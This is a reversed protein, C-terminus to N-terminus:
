AGKAVFSCTATGSALTGVNCRLFKVPKNVVSRFEGSANTTQDLIAFSGVFTPAGSITIVPNATLTVATASVYTAITTVFTVGATGAGGIYITKGVDAATFALSASTFASSSATAVGDLSTRGDISGELNVSVTAPSGTYVTLWSFNSPLTYGGFLPLTAYGCAGTAAVAKCSVFPPTNQNYIGQAGAFATALVLLAITSIVKKM